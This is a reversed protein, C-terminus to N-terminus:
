TERVRHRDELGLVVLHMAQQAASEAFRGRLGRAVTTSAANLVSNWGAPAPVELHYITECSLYCRLTM